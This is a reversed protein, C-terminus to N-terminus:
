VLILLCPQTHHYDCCMGDDVLEAAADAASAQVTGRDEETKDLMCSVIKHIAEHDPEDKLMQAQLCM